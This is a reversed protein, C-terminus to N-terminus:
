EKGMAKRRAREYAEPSDYVKAKKEPQKKRQASGDLIDALSEVDKGGFVRALVDYIFALIHEREVLEGGRWITRIRSNERLGASLAAVTFTPLSRYDYVQYTEALDCILANKDLAMM